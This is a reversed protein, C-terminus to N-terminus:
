GSSSDHIPHADYRSHEEVFVRAGDFLGEEVRKM